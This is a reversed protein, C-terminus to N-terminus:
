LYLINTLGGVILNGILMRLIFIAKSKIKGM